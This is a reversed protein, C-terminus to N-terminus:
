HKQQALDSLRECNGLRRKRVSSQQPQFLGHLPAAGPSVTEDQSSRLHHLNPPHPIFPGHPAPSPPKTTHLTLPVHPLDAGHSWAVELYPKPKPCPPLPEQHPNFTIKTPSHYLKRRPLPMQAAQPAPCGREHDGTFKQASLMRTSTTRHTAATM